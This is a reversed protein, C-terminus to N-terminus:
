IRSNDDLAYWGAVMNTYREHEDLIDALSGEWYRAVVDNPALGMRDRLSQLGELTPDRGADVMSMLYQLYQRHTMGELDTHFWTHLDDWGTFTDPTIHPQETTTFSTDLSHTQTEQQADLSVQEPPKPPSATFTDPTIRPQETTMPNTHLSHTQSRQQADLPAQEPSEPPMTAKTSQQPIVSETANPHM